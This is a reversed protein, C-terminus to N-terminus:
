ANDQENKRYAVLMKGIQNIPTAGLSETIKLMIAKREERDDSHIKIKILEHADLAIELEKLVPKSLGKDGITVVPNLHHAKAKLERKTKNTLPHM